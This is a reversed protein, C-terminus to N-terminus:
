ERGCDNRNDDKRYEGETVGVVQDLSSCPETYGESNTAKTLPDGKEAAESGECSVVADWQVTSVTPQTAWAIAWVSFLARLGPM